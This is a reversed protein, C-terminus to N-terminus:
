RPLQPPRLMVEIQDLAKAALMLAGAAASSADRALDMNADAVANTRLTAASQALAASSALMAHAAQLEDPPKVKETESSIREATRQIGRLRSAPSSALRKVDELWPQIARIRDLTVGIERRYKRLMPLRTAWHDRALSLTRAANLREELAFLMGNVMDPRAEGLARDATQVETVLREIGAVDANRAREDATKLIRADLARYGRDIEEERVIAATTSALAGEVWDAPLATSNSMLSAAAGSLLLLREDPLDVTRAAALTLEIAEKLTPRPLLQVYTDPAASGAVLSMSFQPKGAATRLDAIAGDLFAVMQAVEDAKFDYHSKPWEALRKRAAEAIGLRAAPDKTEMVQEIARTIENSLAIYDIAARYQLYHARRAADAYATTRAWDVRAVPLNMLHLPPVKTDDRDPATLPMSFVVRDGALTVEGYSVLATGDRLFVRFLATEDAASAFRPLALTALAALLVVAGIKM